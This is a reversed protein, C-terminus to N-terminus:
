LRDRHQRDYEHMAGNNQHAANADARDAKSKRASGSIVAPEDGRGDAQTGM